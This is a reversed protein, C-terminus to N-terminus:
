AYSIFGLSFVATMSSIAFGNKFGIFHYQLLRATFQTISFLLYLIVTLHLQFKLM